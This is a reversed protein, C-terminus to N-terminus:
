KELEKLYETELDKVKTKKLYDVLLYILETYYEFTIIVSGSEAYVKNYAGKGFIADMAKKLVFATHERSNEKASDEVDKTLEDVEDAQKYLTDISKDTMSFKLVFKEKGDEDIFPIPIFNKKSTINIM